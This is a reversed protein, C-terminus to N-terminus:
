NLSPLDASVSRRYVWYGVAVGLTLSIANSAILALFLKRDLEKKKAGADSSNGSSKKSAQAAMWSRPPFMNPRSRWDALSIIDDMCPEPERNIFVGQLRLQEKFEKIDSLEVNPSNPPSKPSSSPTNKCTSSVSMMASNIPSVRASSRASFEKQAEKLVRIYDQDQTLAVPTNRGPPTPPAVPICGEGRGSERSLDVWSSQGGPPTEYGSTMKRDTTVGVAPDQGLILSVPQRDRRHIGGQFM